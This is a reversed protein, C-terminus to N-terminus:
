CIKGNVDWQFSYSYPEIQDESCLNKPKLFRLLSLLFVCRGASQDYEQKTPKVSICSVSLVCCTPMDIPAASIWVDAM